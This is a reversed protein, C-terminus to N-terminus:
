KRNGTPPTHKIAIMDQEYDNAAKVIQKGYQSIVEYMADFDDRLADLQNIAATADDGQFCNQLNNKFSQYIQQVYINQYNAAESQINKGLQRTADYNIRTKEM